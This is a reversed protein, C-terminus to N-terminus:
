ARNLFARQDDTLPSHADKLLRGVDAWRDFWPILIDRAFAFLEDACPQWSGSSETYDFSYRRVVPPESRQFPGSPRPAEYWGDYSSMGNLWPADPADFDALHIAAHVRFSTTFSFKHLHIGQILAGSKRKWWSTRDRKFGLDDVKDTFMRYIALHPKV